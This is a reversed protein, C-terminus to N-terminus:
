IHSMNIWQEGIRNTLLKRKGMKKNPNGIMGSLFNKYLNSHVVTGDEFQVDFDEAGKYRIIKMYQSNNAKIVQGVRNKINKYYKELTKYYYVQQVPIIIEDSLGIKIYEFEKLTELDAPNIGSLDPTRMGSNIAMKIKLYAESYSTDDHCGCLFCRQGLVWERPRISSITGCRDHLFSIGYFSYKSVMRYGTNTKEWELYFAPKKSSECIRCFPKKIFVYPAVLFEHDTGIHKILVREIKNRRKYDVVEYKKRKKDIRAQWSEIPRKRCLACGNQRWILHTVYKDVENGCPKHIVTAVNRPNMRIIKYQGSYQCDLYKAFLVEKDIQKSCKPCRCGVSFSDQHTYFTDGCDNCCVRIIPLHSADIVAFNGDPKDHKKRNVYVTAERIFDDPTYASIIKEVLSFHNDKYLVKIPIVLNRLMQSIDERSLPLPNEYAKRMFVAISNEKESAEMPILDQQFESKETLKVSHKWCSTVGPFQHATHIIFTGHKQIDEAACLPCILTKTLRNAGKALFFSEDKERLISEALLINQRMYNFPLTGYYISHKKLVNIVDPFVGSGSNAACINELNSLCIFNEKEEGYYQCFVRYFQDVGVGNARAIRYLWGTFMEDEVIPLLIPIAPLRSGNMINKNSQEETNIM